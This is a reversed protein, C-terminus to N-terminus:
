VAPLGECMSYRLKCECSFSSLGEAEVAKKTLYPGAM